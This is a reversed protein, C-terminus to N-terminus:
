KEIASYNVEHENHSYEQPSDTTLIFKKTFYKLKKFASAYQPNTTDIKIKKLCKTM